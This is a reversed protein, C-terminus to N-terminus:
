SKQGAAISRLLRNGCLFTFIAIPILYRITEFMNLKWWFVGFLSLIAAFGLHFGITTLRFSFNSVNIGLKGWIIFLLVLPTLCLGTFIDSVIRAPRVEPERFKHEIEPLKSRLKQSSDKEVQNFKLEVDAVHWQFSNSLSSDGIILELKYLGTKYGFDAGRAGVDMDFKYAKTTDQEAVFIIEEDTKTNSLRVFAQHVTMTKTTGEELLAVKLVLKQTHDANLTNALKTPYSLSQRKLASAADSDGVGIELSHVKVKGLVKFNLTQTYKDATIDITYIGRAPKYTLLDVSYVTKDSSKSVFQVKEALVSNDKKVIVKGTIIPLNPQVANGLLDVIKINLSPSEIQLQGNGILQICIPTLKKNTNITKLVEILVHAGKATQVSRRSLFYTSFKVTQEETLPLPKNLTNAIKFAGNIILATISLGGEFQLMKGDVEDAQVIADEIRDTVFSASTGLEAAIYFAYGLSSLSDDKKLITQLNKSLKETTPKDIKVGMIKSSFLNFYIEQSTASDKSLSGAIVNLANQPLPNTCQLHKHTGVLYFNKEFDNLKSEGYAQQVKKCVNDKENKTIKNNNIASYYITQLDNSNIGDTFVNELRQLDSSSLHNLVTRTSASVHYGLLITFLVLKIM